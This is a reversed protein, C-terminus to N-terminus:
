RVVDALGEGLHVSRGLPPPPSSCPSPRRWPPWARGGGSGDGAAGCERRRDTACGHRHTGTSTTRLRRVAAVRAAAVAPGVVFGIVHALYAVNGGGSVAVGASYVCQLVFWLGLVLWAPLRLPYSSCSRCWAGCGPGRISCWTRASCAPSRVPRVSSRRRRLGANALAFGYGAVYGCFLYFLMFRLQGLRDEVNNGFVWLFLMNGLLHLWGGHLFMSFLCPCSRSRRTTPPRSWAARGGARDM